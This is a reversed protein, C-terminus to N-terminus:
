WCHFRHVTLGERCGDKSLLVSRSFSAALQGNKSRYKFTGFDSALFFHLM